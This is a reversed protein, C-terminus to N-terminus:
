KQFMSLKGYHKDWWAPFFMKEEPKAYAQEERFKSYGSEVLASLTNSRIDGGRVGMRVKVAAKSFRPDRAFLGTIFDKETDGGEAAQRPFPPDVMYNNYIAGWNEPAVRNTAMNNALGGLGGEFMTPSSKILADWSRDTDGPTSGFLEGRGALGNIYSPINSLEEYNKGVMDLGFRGFIFDRNSRIMAAVAASARGPSRINSRMAIDYKEEETYQSGAEGSMPGIPVVPAPPPAPADSPPPLPVQGPAAISGINGAPVIANQLFQTASDVDWLDSLSELQLIAEEFGIAGARYQSLVADADEQSYGMDAGPPPAGADDTVPVLDSPPVGDDTDDGTGPVLDRLNPLAETPSIWNSSDNPDLPATPDGTPDPTTPPSPPPPPATLHSPLRQKAQEIAVEFESMSIGENDLMERIEREMEPPLDGITGFILAPYANLTAGAMFMARDAMAGVARSQQTEEAVSRQTRETNVVRAMEAADPASMGSAVGVDFVSEPPADPYQEMRFLFDDFSEMDRDSSPESPQTGSPQRALVDAPRTVARTFLEPIESPDIFNDRNAM